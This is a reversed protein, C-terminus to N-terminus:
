QSVEIQYKSNMNKGWNQLCYALSDINYTQFWKSLQVWNQTLDVFQAIVILLQLPTLPSSLQQHRRSKSYVSNSTSKSYVSNTCGTLLPIYQTPWYHVWNSTPYLSNSYVSNSTSKSYVSNTSVVSSREIDNQCWRSSGDRCVQFSNRHGSPMVKIKCAIRRSFFIVKIKIVGSPHLSSIGAPCRKLLEKRHGSPM